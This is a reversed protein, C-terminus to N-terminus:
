GQSAGVNLSARTPARRARARSLEDLIYAVREGVSYGSTLCRQRGKDAIGRRLTANELLYRAQRILCEDNSFSLYERGDSFHADHEDSKEALMPRGCAPIEISRQTIKDRNIKRLFCLAVKGHHLARTYNDAYVAPGRLIGPRLAGAWSGAWAGAANGYVAVKFGAEALVNISRCRDKEYTGVFVLDFREYDEGVEGAMMPRYVTPDFMNGVLVPHRVGRAALEPVNFSKTTFFVDWMSFTLRLPWSLNHRAIIDDPTFYGLIPDCIRRLSRLTNRTLVQGGDVLVFDPRTEAVAAILRENERDPDLPLRLKRRVRAYTSGSTLPVRWCDLQANHRNACVNPLAQFASLRQEAHSGPWFQGHVLLKMKARQHISGLV